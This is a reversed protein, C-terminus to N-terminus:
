THLSQHRINPSQVFQPTTAVKTDNIWIDIFNMFVEFHSRPHRGEKDKKECSGSM